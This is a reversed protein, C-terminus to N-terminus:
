TTPGVSIKKIFAVRKRRGKMESCNWCCSASGKERNRARKKELDLPNTTTELYLVALADMVM